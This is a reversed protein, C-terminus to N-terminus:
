EKDEEKSIKLYWFLLVISFVLAVIGMITIILGARYYEEFKEELSYKPMGFGWLLTYGFRAFFNRM